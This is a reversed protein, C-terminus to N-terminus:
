PAEQLLHHPHHPHALGTSAKRALKRIRRSVGAALQGRRADETMMEASTRTRQAQYLQYGYNTNM